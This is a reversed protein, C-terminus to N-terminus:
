AGAARFMADLSDYHTDIVAQWEPTGTTLTALRQKTEAALADYGRVAPHAKRQGSPGYSIGFGMWMGADGIERVVDAKARSGTGWDIVKVGTPTALWNGIHLDNHSIGARHMTRLAGSLQLGLDPADLSADFDEGFLEEGTRGTLREMRIVGTKPHITLPKATPVGAAYAAAHVEFERRSAPLNLDKPVKFVSAGDKAVYVEAFTSLACPNTASLPLADGRNNCRQARREAALQEIRNPKRPRDGSIPRSRMADRLDASDRQSWAYAGAGAAGLVVAAGLLKAPTLGPGTPPAAEGGGGPGKHCEHAKPIYSQGCPKGLRQDEADRRAGYFRPRRANLGRRTGQLTRIFGASLSAPTRSVFDSQLSERLWVESVTPSSTFPAGTRSIRAARRAARSRTAQQRGLQAIQEEVKRVETARRRAAAPTIPKQGALWAEQMKQIYARRSEASKGKRSALAAAGRAFGPAARWSETVRRLTRGARMGEAATSLGMALPVGVPALPGTGWTMLGRGAERAFGEIKMSARRGPANGSQIFSAAPLGVALAGATVGAAIAARKRWDGKRPAQSVNAPTLAGIRCTRDKPIYSAGCPKGKASADRRLERATAIAADLRATSWREEAARLVLHDVASPPRGLTPTTTSM